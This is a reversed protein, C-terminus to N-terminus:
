QGIGSDKNNAAKVAGQIIAQLRSESDLLFNAKIVVLDGTSVGSLIQVLGRSRAGIKVERPEFRGNPTNVFVIKRMGSYMVASDPVVISNGLNINLNVDVYMGPKLGFHENPLEIRAKLTRSEINLYPYIFTVSGKLEISPDYSSSIVAEQGVKLEKAEYEYFDAEIWIRSLDTITFLEKGLEIRQGEFVDKVTVFGSTPADLTIAKQIKKTKQLEKIFTEPVDFLKLRKMSTDLLTQGYKKAEPSKSATMKEYTELSGIMEEQSSFLEPSYISLLPMNKTVMQGTYNVYLKEVWGSVRTQVRHIKTEDPAVIGVTRITKVFLEKVAPTTMVGTLEIGQKSLAIPAMGSVGGSSDGTSEDEYVPIYDMGMEDKAFVPSTIAPNMPNRYFLLKREKKPKKDKTVETQGDAFFDEAEQELQTKPKEAAIGIVSSTLLIVFVTTFIYAGKNNFIFNFM